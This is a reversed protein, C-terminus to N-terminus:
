VNEIWATEVWKIMYTVSSAPEQAELPSVHYSLAAAKREHHGSQKRSPQKGERTLSIGTTAAVFLKRKAKLQMTYTANDKKPPHTSTTPIPQRERLGSRDAYNLYSTKFDQDKTRFKQSIQLEKCNWLRTFTGQLLSEEFHDRGVVIHQYNRNDSGKQYVFFTTGTTM